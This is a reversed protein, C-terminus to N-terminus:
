VFLTWRKVDIAWDADCHDIQLSVDSTSSLSILKDNSTASAPGGVLVSSSSSSSSSLSRSDNQCCSFAARLVAKSRM